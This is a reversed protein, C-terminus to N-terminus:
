WTRDIEKFKNYSIVRFQYSAGNFTIVRNKALVKCFVTRTLDKFKEPYRNHCYDIISPSHLHVLENTIFVPIYAYSLFDVEFDAILDTSGIYYNIASYVLHVEDNMWIVELGITNILTEMEDLDKDSWM